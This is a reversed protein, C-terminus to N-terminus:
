YKLQKKYFFYGEKECLWEFNCSTLVKISGMNDKKCDALINTVQEQKEVYDILALVGEKAYGKKRYDEYVTYALDVCGNEDPLGHFGLEGIIEQSHNLKMVWLSWKMLYDHGRYRKLHEKVIKANVPEKFVNIKKLQKFQKKDITFLTLRQTKIEM